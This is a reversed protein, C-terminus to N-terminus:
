IGYILNIGFRGSSKSQLDSQYLIRLNIEQFSSVCLQEAKVLRRYCLRRAPLSKNM